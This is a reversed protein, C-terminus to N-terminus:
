KVKEMYKEGCFPCFSAVIMEEAIRKVGERYIEAVVAIKQSQLPQQSEKFRMPQIVNKISIREIPKGRYEGNLTERLIVPLQEICNCM